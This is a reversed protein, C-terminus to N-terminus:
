SVPVVQEEQLMVLEAVVEVQEVTVLYLEPMIQHLLDQSEVVVLELLVLLIIDPVVVVLGNLNM